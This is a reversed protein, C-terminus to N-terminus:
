SEFVNYLDISNLNEVEYRLTFNNPEVVINKYFGVPVNDFFYQNMFVKLYNRCESHNQLTIRLLDKEDVQNINYKDKSIILQGSKRPIKKEIIKLENLEYEDPYYTFINLFKTTPWKFKYVDDEINNGKLFDLFGSSKLSKLYFVELIKLSPFLNFIETITIDSSSVEHLSLIEINRFKKAMFQLHILKFNQCGAIQINKLDNNLSSIMRKYNRGCKFMKFDIILTKLNSMKSLTGCIVDANNDFKRNRETFFFIWLLEVKKCANTSAVDWFDDYIEVQISINFKISNSYSTFSDVLKYFRDIIYVGNYIINIENFYESIIKLKNSYKSYTDHCDNFILELNNLEKLKFISLGELLFKAWYKGACKFSLNKMSRPFFWKEDIKNENDYFDYLSCDLIITHPQLSKLYKFTLMHIPQLPFRTFEFIKIKHFIDLKELEKVCSFWGFQVKLKVVKNINNKIKNVLLDFNPQFLSNGLHLQINLINNRISFHSGQVTFGYEDLSNKNFISEQSHSVKNSIINYFSRCTLKFNLKDVPDSLQDYLINILESCNFVTNQPQQEKHIFIETTYLFSKFLINGM